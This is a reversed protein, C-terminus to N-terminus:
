NAFILSTYIMLMHIYCTQPLCFMHTSDHESKAFQLCDLRPLVMKLEAISDYTICIHDVMSIEKMGYDGVLNFTFCPASTSSNVYSIESIRNMACPVTIPEHLMISYVINSPPIQTFVEKHTILVVHEFNSIPLNACPEHIHTDHLDCSDALLTTPECFNSNAHQLELDAGIAIVDEESKTPVSIEEELPSTPQVIAQEREEFAVQVDYSVVSPVIAHEELTLPSAPQVIPPEREEFVVQMDCPVVSPTSIIVNTAVECTEDVVVGMNELVGM